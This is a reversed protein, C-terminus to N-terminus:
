GCAFCRGENCYCNWLAQRAARSESYPLCRRLVIAVEHKELHNEKLYADIKKANIAEVVDEVLMKEKAATPM